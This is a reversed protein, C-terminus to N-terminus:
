SVKGRLPQAAALAQELGFEAHEPCCYYRQDAGKWCKVHEDEVIFLANCLACRQPAGHRLYRSGNLMLHRGPGPVPLSRAEHMGGRRQGVRTARSTVPTDEELGGMSIAEARDNTPLSCPCSGPIGRIIGPTKVRRAIILLLAAAPPMLRHTTSPHLVGTGAWMMCQLAHHRNVGHEEHNQAIIHETRAFPGTKPGVCVLGAPLVILEWRLSVPFRTPM